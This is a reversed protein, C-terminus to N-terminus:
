TGGNFEFVHMTVWCSLGNFQHGNLTKRAELAAWCSYYIVFAFNDPSSTPILVNQPKICFDYM